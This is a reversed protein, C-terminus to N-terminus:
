EGTQKLGRIVLVTNLHAFDAAPLITGSRTISNPDKEITQIYGILIGPLYKDSVNSTVVKEGATVNADLDQLRSFAIVGSDYLNLDGSVILIDSTSLVAGTVNANDDIITGVRAWHPGLATIRGVLGGGSIVNMDTELGDAEGRDIIFSHYWNGADRAIIRAATKEYEQYQADLDYLRRLEDLEYKDQLLETNRTQLQENELKLKVNEAILEDMDQMMQERDVLWTGVQSIGSQMPIILFSCINELPRTVLRTSYTVAILVICAITVFLLLYRDPIRSFFSDKKM